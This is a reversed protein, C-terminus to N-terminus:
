ETDDTDDTAESSQLTTSTNRDEGGRGASTADQIRQMRNRKRKGSNSAARDPNATVEDKLKRRYANIDALGRDYQDRAASAQDQHFRVTTILGKTNALCATIQENGADIENKFISENEAYTKAEVKLVEINSTLVMIYAGSLVLAGSLGVLAYV